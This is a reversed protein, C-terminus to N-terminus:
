LDRLDDVLAHIVKSLTEVQGHADQALKLDSKPETVPAPQPEVRVPPAEEVPVPPTGWRLVLQHAEWRAELRLGFALFAFLAALGSVLVAARRWRRLRRQQELAARELIRYLDVRVEPAAVSGLQQRVTALAAYERQCAPCTTLHVELEPRAAPSVDGYVLLGLNERVQPCNM